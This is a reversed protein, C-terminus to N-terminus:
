SSYLQNKINKLTNFYTLADVRMEGRWYTQAAEIIEDSNEFLFLAKPGHNKDVCTLAHGSCVLGAAAGLDYTSFPNQLDDLYPVVTPEKTMNMIKPTFKAGKQQARLCFLLSTHLKSKLATLWKLSSRSM